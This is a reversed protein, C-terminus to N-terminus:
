FSFSLRQLQAISQVKLDVWPPCRGRTQAQNLYRTMWVTRVGLQRYAKLHSATDEVLIVRHAPVKLRALVRRLMLRNPKPRFQGHVQMHEVAIHQDFYPHLRLHQMVQRAYHQPANTLLVKRGPLRRLQRAIGRETRILSPLDEFTHAEKLFDHPNTGHHKVMGLLTAGYRLWYQERIANAHAEHTHLAQMVYATMARNIHPFIAYSANHLTNDLDFLWVPATKKM